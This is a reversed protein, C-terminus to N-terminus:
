MCISLDPDHTCTFQLCFYIISLNRLNKRCNVKSHCIMCKWSFDIKASLIINYNQVHNKNAMNEPFKSETIYHSSM